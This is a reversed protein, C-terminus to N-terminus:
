HMQKNVRLDQAEKYHILTENKNLDLLTKTNWKKAQDKEQKITVEQRTKDKSNYRVYKGNLNQKLITKVNNYNWMPVKSLALRGIM